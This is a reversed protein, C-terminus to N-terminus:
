NETPREARDIVLVEVPGKASELKLGLQEELATYISSLDTPSAGGVNAVATEIPNWKLDVDFTGTFGTKDEIRRMVWPILMSIFRPMDVQTARIMGTDMVTFGCVEPRGRPAQAPVNPDREICKGSKLKAGGKAVTLLYIPREQIERRISLKFREELLGQLMPGNIENGNADDDAKAEIDYRDTNIWSPGGTLQFDAVRYAQLILMRLTVNRGVFRHPQTSLNLARSGSNNPKISAAEFQRQVVKATQCFVPITTVVFLLFYRRVM